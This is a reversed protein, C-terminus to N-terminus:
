QSVSKGPTRGSDPPIPAASRMARRRPRRADATGAGAPALPRAGNLNEIRRHHRAAAAGSLCGRRAAGPSSPAPRSWAPPPAARPRWGPRARAPRECGRCAARARPPAPRCRRAGRRRRARRACGCGARRARDVRRREEVEALPDAAVVVLAAQEAQREMGAEGLVAAEVDVVGVPAAVGADDLVPDVGAIRVAGIRGALALM